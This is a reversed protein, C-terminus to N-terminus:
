SYPAAVGKRAPGQYNALYGGPQVVKPLEGQYWQEDETIAYKGALYDKVQTHEREISQESRPQPIKDGWDGLFAGAGIASLGYLLDGRRLWIVGQAGLVVPVLGYNYHLQKLPEPAWSGLLHGEQRYVFYKIQDLSMGTLWAVGNVVISM